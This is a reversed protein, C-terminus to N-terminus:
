RQCDSACWPDLDIGAVLKRCTSRGQAPFWICTRGDSNAVVTRPAAGFCRARPVPDLFLSASTPAVLSVLVTRKVSPLMLRTLPESSLRSVAM